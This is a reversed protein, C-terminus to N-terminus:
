RSLDLFQDIKRLPKLWLTYWKPKIKNIRWARRDELNAKIRNRLSLNSQGGRRMAVLIGPIYALKIKHIHVVRLMWEYDSAFRFSLNYDGYKEIIERKVFFTTHPPMWGKYFDGNHYGGSIWKRTTKHPRSRSVYKLDTYVADCDESEFKKAVQTLLDNTLWFDDGHLIGVIEGSAKAFGKNLADFLSSDKEVFIKSNPSIGKILEVTRDQSGGDQVIHEIEQYDQAVLSRISKEITKECDLSATVITFKM